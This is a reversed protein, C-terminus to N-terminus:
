IEIVKRKNKPDTAPQGFRRLARYYLNARWRPTGDEICLDRFVQDAADKATAPLLEERILQYIADHVLSARMTRRTDRVPGSAGNWAYGECISIKSASLFVYGNASLDTGRQVGVCPAIYPAALQYKYGTRYKM